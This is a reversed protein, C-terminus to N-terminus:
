SLLGSLSVRELFRALQMSVLFMGLPLRLALPLMSIVEASNIPHANPPNSRSITNVRSRSADSFACAM